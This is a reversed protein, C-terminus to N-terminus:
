QNDNKLEQLRFIIRDIWENDFHNAGIALLCIIKHAMDLSAHPGFAFSAGNITFYKEENEYLFCVAHHEKMDATAIEHECYNDILSQVKSGLEQGYSDLYCHDMIKLLHELERKTFDNMACAWVKRLAM